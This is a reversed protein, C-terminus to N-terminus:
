RAAEVLESKAHDLLVDARAMKDLLANREARMTKERAVANDYGAQLGRTTQREIFLEQRLQSNHNELKLVLQALEGNKEGSEQLKKIFASRQEGLEHKLREIDAKLGQVKQRHRVDSSAYADEVIVGLRVRYYAVGTIQHFDKLEFRLMHPNLYEEFHEALGRLHPLVAEEVVPPPYDHSLHVVKYLADEIYLKARIM